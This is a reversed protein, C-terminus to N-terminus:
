VSDIRILSSYFIIRNCAQHGVFCLMLLVIQFDDKIKSNIQPMWSAIENSSSGNSSNNMQVVARAVVHTTSIFLLEFSYIYQENSSSKIEYSSKENSSNINKIFYVFFITWIFMLITWISLFNKKEVYTQDMVM